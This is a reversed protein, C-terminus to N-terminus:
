QRWSLPLRSEIFERVKPHRDWQHVIPSRRGRVFIGEGGLEIQEVPTLGITSVVENELDLGIFAPAQRWYIFNHFGQDIGATFPNVRSREAEERMLAIYRMIGSYTGITTGSCLIRRKKLRWLVGRGYAAKLWNRNCYEEGICRDEPAFLVEVGDARSLRETLIQGFPDGQFIVDRCDSLLVYRIADIAISELADRYKFYRITQPHRDRGADGMQYIHVRHQRCAAALREDPGATMLIVDADSHQRLSLLFPAVQSFSLNFCLSVVVDKPM